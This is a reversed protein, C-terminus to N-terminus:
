AVEFLDGERTDMILFAYDVVAKEPAGQLARDMRRLFAAKLSVEVVREGQTFRARVLRPHARLTINGKGMTCGTSYQVGDVLCSKPPEPRTTIEAFTDFPSRGLVENALLGMRLGIALFPGIHGHFRGAAKLLPNETAASRRSPGGARKRARSVASGSRVREARKSGSGSRRAAARATM